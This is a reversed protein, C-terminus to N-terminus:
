ADSSEAAACKCARVPPLLSSSRDCACHSSWFDMVEEVVRDGVVRERRVPRGEGDRLLIVDLEILSRPRAEVQLIFQSAM